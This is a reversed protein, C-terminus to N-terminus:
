CYSCSLTSRVAGYSRHVRGLNRNAEALESARARNARLRRALLEGNASELAILESVIAKVHMREHSHEQGPVNTIRAKESLDLIARQLQQKAQQCQAVTAWDSRELAAAEAQTWARWHEYTQILETAPNM